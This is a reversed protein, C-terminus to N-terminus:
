PSCVGTICRVCVVTSYVTFHLYRCGTSPSEEPWSSCAARGVVERSVKESALHGGKRPWHSGGDTQTLAMRANYREIPLEVIIIIWSRIESEAYGGYRCINYRISFKNKGCLSRYSKPM